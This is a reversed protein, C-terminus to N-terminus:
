PSFPSLLNRSRVLDMRTQGSFIKCLIPLYNPRVCDSVDAPQCNHHKTLFTSHHEQTKPIHVISFSHVFSCIFLHVFSCIFLHVFSCIFLHIFSYIFLHFFSFIFSLIFFIIFPHIFLHIFSLFSSLISSDIFPLFSSDIFWHILSHIFPHIGPNFEELTDKDSFVKEAEVSRGEITFGRLLAIKLFRFYLTDWFDTCYPFESSLFVHHWQLARNKKFNRVYPINEKIRPRM